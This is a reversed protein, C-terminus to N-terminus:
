DGVRGRTAKITARHRKGAVLRAKQAASRRRNRRRAQEQAARREALALRQRNELKACLESWALERNQAQSRERQCRVELGTPEHRLWVTSSTKNIKQGGPGSGRVFRETVESPTAGAAALRQAIETPLDMNCSTREAFCKRPLRTMEM